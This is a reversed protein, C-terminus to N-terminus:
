KAHLALISPFEEATPAVAYRPLTPHLADWSHASRCWVQVSPAFEGPQDLSGAWVGQLEPVLDALIFLQSGCDACFGRHVARGSEATVTAYRARGEIVLSARPVYMVACYDSGSARQCDRCHCLWAFTPEAMGRYHIAGCGCRGTYPLHM